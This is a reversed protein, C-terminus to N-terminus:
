SKRAFNGFIDQAKKDYAKSAELPSNFYGVFIQQREKCIKALWKQAKKDWSVGKYGSKNTRKKSGNWNNESRNCVRLNSRRNDLKNGNIHDTDFGKPTNMILRHMYVFVKRDRTYVYGHSSVNWSFKNLREFDEKDVITFGKIQSNKYRHGGLQIKKM